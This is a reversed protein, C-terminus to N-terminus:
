ERARGRQAPEGSANGSASEVEVRSAHTLGEQVIPYLALAASASQKSFPGAGRDIGNAELTCRRTASPAHRRLVARPGPNNAAPRAEFEVRSEFTDARALKTTMEWSRRALLAADLAILWLVL